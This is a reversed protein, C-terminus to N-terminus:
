IEKRDVLPITEKVNIYASTIDCAVAYFEVGANKAERCLEAYKPDIHHAAAVQKIATHFTMYLVVARHGENVMDILSKLHQQARVSVTDPFYGQEGDALTVSKVEIFVNRGASDTALWDIRRNDNGYRQEATLSSLESLEPIVNQTLAEKAVANARHTNVCIRHGDATEALEWTYRYKRKPNDSDSMWVKMGPEACGTMAGTNPCHITLTEQEATTVDALFRKYRKILQAPYLPNIFQMTLGM